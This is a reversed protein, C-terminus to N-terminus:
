KFSSAQSKTKKFIISFPILAESIGALNLYAM